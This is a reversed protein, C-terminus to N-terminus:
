LRRPGTDPRHTPSDLVGDAHLVSWGDARALVPNLTLRRLQPVEDALQGIRIALDALTERQAEGLLAAAKPARVLDRAQRDTLPAARWAQDGVLAPVPGGLRFGVVPGFAPDDVMELVCSVGPPVMPQVLAPVGAGFIRELDQYARQADDPGILDLRVAGLDLRDPHDYAKLAVPGAVTRAADAAARANDVYTVPVIGIGYSALLAVVSSTDPVGRVPSPPVEGIPERLWSARRTVLALARVAEEISRFSPVGSPPQGALFTAVVPKDAGQAAAALADAFPALLEADADPRVAGTPLAPAVVVVLADVDQRALLDTLAMAFDDAGATPTVARTAQHTLGASSAAGAALAALASSNSVIGFRDGAPLPHGALLAAVDFLEAMTDVKIVGSHEQLAQMAAVDLSSGVTDPLVAAVPLMVVPKHRGIDRAIRSFKRPNGFTELYLLVVDTEPDTAWYQLMDNGSVDARHGANVFSSLGLGRRHAETLMVLGLAGSQSFCGVRGRPLMFPLGPVLTANLRVAQNAIGLSAPGVIRMGAARAQRVLAARPGAALETIIVLGHVGAAAADAVVAPVAEPPTAVVALDVTGEAQTVSTLPGDPHIVHMPGSFGGARLHALVAAGVGQGSRSAGYVAVSGPSMMRAVSRAETRQEREWQVARSRETAAVPFTLHVVGDAYRRSVDYGADTFIRVMSGNSPLVEAVFRTIGEDRAADALHELLVSGIGRGQQADEVVFAVEADPADPGLRDYRGVAVLRDGSVLVFAERDHHDVNVFRALDRAPIRPYPSFYRLYRTRDSFRAHMAVIADADEPRIQRLHITSGDALLVDASRGASGSGKEASSNARRGHM